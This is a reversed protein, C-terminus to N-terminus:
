KELSNFYNRGVERCEQANCLIITTNKPNDKLEKKYYSYLFGIVLIVILGLVAFLYQNRTKIELKQNKKSM